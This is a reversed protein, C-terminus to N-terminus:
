DRNWALNLPSVMGDIRLHFRSIPRDANSYIWCVDDRTAAGPVFACNLLVPGMRSSACSCRNNSGLGQGNERKNMVVFGQWRFLRCKFPIYGDGAPLCHLQQPSHCNISPCLFHLWILAEQPAPPGNSMWRYYAAEISWPRVNCSYSTAM